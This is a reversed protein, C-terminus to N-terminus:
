KSEELAEVMRAIFQVLSCNSVRAQNPTPSAWSVTVHVRGTKRMIPYQNIIPYMKFKSENAAYAANQIECDRVWKPDPEEEELQVVAVIHKVNVILGAAAGGLSLPIFGKPAQLM